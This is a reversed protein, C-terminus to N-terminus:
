KKSPACQKFYEGVWSYIAPKFIRNRRLMMAGSRIHRKIYDKLLNHLVCIIKQVFTVLQWFSSIIHAYACVTCGFRVQAVLVLHLLCRDVGTYKPDPQVINHRVNNQWISLNDQKAFIDIIVVHSSSTCLKSKETNNRCKARSAHRFFASIVRFHGRVALTNLVQARDVSCLKKKRPDM